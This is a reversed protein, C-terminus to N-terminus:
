KIRTRVPELEAGLDCVWSITDYSSWSTLVKAGTLIAGEEGTFIQNNKPVVSFFRHVGAKIIFTTGETNNDVLDQYNDGPNLVVQSLITAALALVVVLSSKIHM